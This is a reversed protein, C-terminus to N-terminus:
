PELRTLLELRCYRGSLHLPQGTETRLTCVGYSVSLIMAQQSQPALSLSDLGCYGMVSYRGDAPVQNMCRTAEFIHAQSTGADASSLREFVADTPVILSYPRELFSTIPKVQGAVLCNRVKTSSSSGLEEDLAPQLDVIKVRLGHQSGLEQLM